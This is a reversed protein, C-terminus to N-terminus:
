IGARKEWVKTSLVRWLVSTSSFLSTLKEPVGVTMQRRVPSIQRAPVSNQRKVPQDRSSSTPLFYMKSTRGVGKGRKQREKATLSVRGADALKEVRRRHDLVVLGEGLVRELRGAVADHGLTDDESRRPSRDRARKAEGNAAVEEGHTRESRMAKVGKRGLTEQRHGKRKWEGCHGRRTHPFKRGMRQPRPPSPEAPVPASLLPYSVSVLSWVPLLPTIQVHQLFSPLIPNAARGLIQRRRRPRRQFTFYSPIAQYPTLLVKRAWTVRISHRASLPAFAFHSTRRTRSSRPLDATSREALLRRARGSTEDEEERGAVKTKERGQRQGGKGEGKRRGLRGKGLISDAARM